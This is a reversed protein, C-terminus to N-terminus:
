AGKRQKNRSGKPRGRGRGQENIRATERAAAEAQHENLIIRRLHLFQHAEAEPMVPLNEAEQGITEAFQRGTVEMLRAARAHVARLNSWFAMVAAGYYAFRAPDELPLDPDELASVLQEMDDLCLLAREALAASETRVRGTFQPWTRTEVKHLRERLQDAEMEAMERAHRERTLGHQADGLQRRTAVTREVVAELIEIVQDKDPAAEAQRIVEGREDEPLQRLQRLDRYGLGVKRMADLADGGLAALNALDEDVKARSLGLGHRCYDEFSSITLPGDPRSFTLGKYLKREKVEQLVKLSSVNFFERSAHAMQMIGLLRYAEGRAAEAEQGAGLTAPLKKDTM